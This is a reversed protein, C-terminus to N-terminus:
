FLQGLEPPPTQRNAPPFFLYVQLLHLRLHFHQPRPPPPPLAWHTLACLEPSSISLSGECLAAGELMKFGAIGSRLLDGPIGEGLAVTIHVPVNVAAESYNSLSPFLGFVM